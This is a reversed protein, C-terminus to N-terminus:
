QVAPSTTMLEGGAPEIKIPVCRGTKRLLRLEQKRNGRFGEWAPPWKSRDNTGIVIAFWAKAKLIDPDITIPECGTIFRDWVGTRLYYRVRRLPVGMLDALENITLPKDASVQHEGQM